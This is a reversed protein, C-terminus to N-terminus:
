ICKLNKKFFFLSNYQFIISISSALFTEKSILILSSPEIFRISVVEIKYIHEACTIISRFLATLSNTSFENSAFQVVNSNFNKPLPKFPNSTQSSPFPIFSSSKGNIAFLPVVDFILSKSSIYRM